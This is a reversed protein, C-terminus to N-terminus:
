PQKGEERNKVVKACAGCNEVFRKEHGTHFGKGHLLDAVRQKMEPTREERQYPEPKKVFAPERLPKPEAMRRALDDWKRVEAIFAPTDPFWPKTGQRFTECAKVVAWESCGTLDRDIDECILTFAEPGRTHKLHAELRTLHATIYGPAAPRCLAEVFKIPPMAIQTFGLGDDVSGTEWAYVKGEADKLPVSVARTMPKIDFCRALDVELTAFKVPDLPKKRADPAQVTLSTNQNM